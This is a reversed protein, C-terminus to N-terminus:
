LRHPLITPPTNMFSPTVFMRRYGLRPQQLMLKRHVTEDHDRPARTTAFGRQKGLKAPTPVGNYFLGASPDDNFLHIAFACCERPYIRSGKHPAYNRHSQGILRPRPM